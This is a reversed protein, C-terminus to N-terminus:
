VASRPTYSKNNRVYIAELISEAEDLCGFLQEFSAVVFYKDQIVDNRYPTHLLTQVDFPLHQPEESVSYLTEGYSSLLGSGYIKLQGEERVLGFEITFWYLRSLMQIVATDDIFRMGIAALRSLFACYDPDSLFPLHGFVDHFMDPEELYDLQDPRRLWTTAPFRQQRLMEFFDRDPVINPVVTIQWGTQAALLQNVNEFRPIRDARFRIKELSQLFRLAAYQQLNAMQRDFLLKWVGFDAATYQDYAQHM